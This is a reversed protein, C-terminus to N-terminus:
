KPYSSFNDRLSIWEPIVEMTCKPSLNKKAMDDLVHTCTVQGLPQRRVHVLSVGAAKRVEELVVFSSWHCVIYEIAWSVGDAGRTCRIIILSLSLLFRVRGHSLILEVPKHLAHM